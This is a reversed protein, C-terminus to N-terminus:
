KKFMNNLKDKQIKQLDQIRTHAQQPTKKFEMHALNRALNSLPSPTLKLDKKGQKKEKKEKIEEKDEKHQVTVFNTKRTRYFKNMLLLGKGKKTPQKKNNIKYKKKKRFRLTKKAM